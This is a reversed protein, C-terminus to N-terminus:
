DVFFARRGNVQARLTQGRVRRAALPSLFVCAGAHALVLDHEEPRTALHMELSHTVDTTGLRLGATEPLHADDLLTRILAAADTSLQV